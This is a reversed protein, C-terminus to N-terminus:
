VVVLGPGTGFAGLIKRVLTSMKLTPDPPESIGTDFPKTLTTFYARSAPPRVGPPARGGSVSTASRLQRGPRHAHSAVRAQRHWSRAPVALHPSM